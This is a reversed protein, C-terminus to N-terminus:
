MVEYRAKRGKGLLGVILQKEGMEHKRGPGDSKILCHVGCVM